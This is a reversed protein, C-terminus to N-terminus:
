GTIAAVADSDPHQCASTVRGLGPARDAVGSSVVSGSVKVMM